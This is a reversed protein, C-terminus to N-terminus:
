NSQTSQKISGLVLLGTALCIVYAKVSQERIQIDITQNDKLGSPDQVQLLIESYTSSCNACTIILQRQALVISTSIDDPTRPESSWILDKPEDDPDDVYDDLNLGYGEGPSITITPIRAISPPDNKPMIVVRMTSTSQNTGDSLTIRVTDQRVEETYLLRLLHGDISVESTNVKITIETVHNDPDTIKSSLDIVSPVDETVSVETIDLMPPDNVAEVQVYFCYADQGGHDDLLIAQVTERTVGNPYSFALITGRV